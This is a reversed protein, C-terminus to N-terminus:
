KSICWSEIRFLIAVPIDLARHFVGVKTFMLLPQSKEVTSSGVLARFRGGMANNM